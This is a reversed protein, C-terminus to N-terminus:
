ETPSVGLLEYFRGQRPSVPLPVAADEAAKFLDSLRIGLAACIVMLMQLGPCRRALEIRSIVSASVGCRDALEALKLGSALRAQRILDGLAVLIAEQTPKDILGDRWPDLTSGDRATLSSEKSTKINDM